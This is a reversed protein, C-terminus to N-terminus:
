EVVATMDKNAGGGNGAYGATGGGGGATRSAGSGSTGGGGGDAFLFTSNSFWSASGTRPASSGGAGVFLNYTNGPVVSLNNIYTLAAGGGGGGYLDGGAGGGGVMVISISTVNAPVTWTNTGAITFTAEGFESNANGSSTSNSSNGIDNTAYVIFTYATGSTLGSVIVNGSGSQNVTGSISSPTSVATYSKVPNGGNYSPAIFSISAATTNTLVARTLTPADPVTASGGGPGPGKGAMVNFVGM